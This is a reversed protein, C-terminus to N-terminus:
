HWVIVCIQKTHATMCMGPSWVTQGNQRGNSKEFQPVLSYNKLIHNINADVCNKASKALNIPLFNSHFIFRIKKNILCFYLCLYWWDLVLFIHAFIHEKKDSWFLMNALYKCFQLTMPKKGEMVELDIDQVLNGGKRKM